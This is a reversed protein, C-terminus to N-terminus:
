ENKECLGLVFLMTKLTKTNAKIIVCVTDNTSWGAIKFSATDYLKKPISHLLLILKFSNNM